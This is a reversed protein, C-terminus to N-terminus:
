KSVSLLFCFIFIIPLTARSMKTITTDTHQTKHKTSGGLCNLTRSHWWIEYKSFHFNHAINKPPNRGEDILNRGFFFTCDDPWGLCSYRKEPRLKYTSWPVRWFIYRCVRWFLGVNCGIILRSYKKKQDYNSWPVWWFLGLEHFGWVYWSESFRRDHWFVFVVLWM